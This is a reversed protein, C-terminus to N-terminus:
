QLRGLGQLAEDGPATVGQVGPPEEADARSNPSSVVFPAGFM